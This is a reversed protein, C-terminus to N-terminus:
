PAVFTFVGFMSRKAFSPTRNLSACATEATHVGDRYPRRVPSYPQRTFLQPGCATRPLRMMSGAFIVSARSRFFWPYAVAHM